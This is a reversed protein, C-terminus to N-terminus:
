QSMSATQLPAIEDALAGMRFWGSLQNCAVTAM